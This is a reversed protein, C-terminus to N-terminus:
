DLVSAADITLTTCDFYLWLLLSVFCEIFEVPFSGFLDNSHTKFSIDKLSLISHHHHQFSHCSGSRKAQEDSTWSLTVNKTTIAM